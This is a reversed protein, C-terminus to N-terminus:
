VPNRETAKPSSKKGVIKAKPIPSQNKHKCSSQPPDLQNRSRTTVPLTDQDEEDPLIFDWM